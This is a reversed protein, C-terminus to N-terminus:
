IDETFLVGQAAYSVIKTRNGRVKYHSQTKFSLVSRIAKSYSRSLDFLWARVVVDNIWPGKAM